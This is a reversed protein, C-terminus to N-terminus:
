VSRAMEDQDHTGQNHRDIISQTDSMAEDQQRYGSNPHEPESALTDLIDVLKNRRDSIIRVTISYLGPRHYADWTM